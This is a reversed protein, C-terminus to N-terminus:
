ASIQRGEIWYEHWLVLNLLNWLNQGVNAKRDRHRQLMGRVFDLNFYGSRMLSSNLLKDEAFPYWVDRLWENMPAAFGQKKRYIIEDPILGEVAKKLIYKTTSNKVRLSQPLRMVFEVLRHDLFPERGEVKTAMTMKDVRMLLLEPLRNRLEVYVMRQLYDANGDRQLADEHFQKAIHYSSELQAFFSPSLLHRKHIETFNIAGGWFLEEGFTGKRLYELPLYDGRANLVMAATVYIAQRIFRPLLGYFKWYTNHFKLERLMWPYGAFIEDSGEGIQIVITGSERALRSVFYLPICVPDALPEDQYYPLEPIFDMALRSDIIVEHHNTQFQKAILRAYQLENYKELDRFGVSFTDVPRGSGSLASAMLAVNTSSDIGGSLFVGFPVDSMMRDSISRTLLARVTQVAFSEREAPKAAMKSGHSDGRGLHASEFEDIYASRAVPNGDIDITPQSGNPSLPDWYRETELNGFRDVVGRTGPELKYINKFLTRPAPSVLYTLYHVFAEEDMERIVEPHQAIAKIESAFIFKGSATQTYYLPKVGIRDRAFFLQRRNEDWIAFAFMGLLKHVVEPGWEEYGHLISETDSRSRYRHGRQELQRRLVTHNYIEGNFVIRISGDENAMPQNALPSLDIIALRRFGLGVRRDPSIYVGADDPGRHIMTDRMRVLVDETIESGGSGFSLIGVIGCVSNGKVM